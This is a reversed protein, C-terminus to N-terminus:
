GKFDLKPVQPKGSVDNKKKKQSDCWNENCMVPYEKLTM